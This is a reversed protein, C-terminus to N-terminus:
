QTSWHFYGGDDGDADITIAANTLKNIIRLRNYQSDPDDSDDNITIIIFNDGLVRFLEDALKSKRECVECM